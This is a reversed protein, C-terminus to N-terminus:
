IQEKLPEQAVVQQTAVHTPIDDSLVMTVPGSANLFQQKGRWVSGCFDSPGGRKKWSHTTTLSKASFVSSIFFLWLILWLSSRFILRTILQASLYLVASFM